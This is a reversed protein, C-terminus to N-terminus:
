VEIKYRWCDAWYIYGDYQEFKNLYVEIKKTERDQLINFNSLQLRESEGPQKKDIITMTDKILLGRDNVEAIVLPHRPYNGYAKHDTINGIWYTKNNKISKVFSSISGSSYFVEQDDYHWPVPDTFTKGGDDSYSFWKHPPTSKEILTGWKPYQANCGRFVVVIRGSPLCAVTPETAGRSSKLPSIFVPRSFVFEYHEREKNYIGRVVLIAGYKSPPISFLKTIDVDILKFGKEGSICIAFLVDGNDLVEVNCGFYSRNSGIYEPNFWNNEDFEAGDEYKVLIGRPKDTESKRIFLICHDYFEVEGTAWYKEYANEHGNKYLRRMGLGVFHKHVPNYIEHGYHFNMEDNGNKEYYESVAIPKGWTRGNDESYMKYMVTSFDSEKVVSRYEVRTLGTGHVYKPIVSIAEYKNPSPIYVEREVCITM